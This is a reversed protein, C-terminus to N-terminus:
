VTRRKVKGYILVLITLILSFHPLWDGFRVFFTQGDMTRASGLYAIKKQATAQSLTEGLPSIVGSIGSNGCRVIYRRNEIARMCAIQYHQEPGPTNDYWADNTIVTLVQAGSRVFGACFSPFISEICIITGISVTDGRVPAKLCFQEKGIAWSSIGVGWEMWKRAFSLVEKFPLQESFPTLRMKHYIQYKAQASSDIPILISSNFADYWVAGSPDFPKATLSLSDKNYTLKFDAFGSILPVKNSNVWQQIFSLNHDVNFSRGIYHLSTESWLGFDPKFPAIAQILSDELRMQLNIQENISREWKDWPNINPQIVAFHVLKGDPAQYKSRPYYSYLLPIIIILLLSIILHYTQRNFYISIPNKINNNGANVTNVLFPIGAHTPIVFNKDSHIGTHALIVSNEGSHIEAHAPIVPSHKGSKLLIIMLIINFLVILFSAGWIGTIDIFQIWLKNYAQTYGIALWPYALDSLTRTWENFTWFFPLLWLATVSGFRRKVFFYLFFPVFFFLPHVFALIISSIMLFQDAHPQWSGIWWNMGSHYVFFTCYVWIYKRKNWNEQEFIWLLPIFAFFALPFLLSPPFAIALLGGSLISLLFKQYNKM